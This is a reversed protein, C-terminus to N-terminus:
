HIPPGVLWYFVVTLATDYMVAGLLMRVVAASAQKPVETPSSKVELGYHCAIWGVITGLGVGKAVFLVLDSEQLTQVAEANMM